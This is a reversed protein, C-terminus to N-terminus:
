VATHEVVSRIVGDLEDVSKELSVLLEEEINHHPTNIILDSIAKINLLPARVLHSQIFAIERLRRHQEHKLAAEKLLRRNLEKQAQLSREINVLLVRILVVVVINIFLFSASFVIWNYLSIGYVATAGPSAYLYGTFAVSLATNVIVGAGSMYGPLFLVMFISAALLYICGLQPNHLIFTVLLSLALAICAFLLKRFFLPIRRQFVMLYILLLTGANIFVLYADGMIWEYSSFVLAALLAAPMIRLMVFAFLSNQWYEFHSATYGNPQRLAQWVFVKYHRGATLYNKKLTTNLISM